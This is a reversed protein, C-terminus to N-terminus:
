SGDLAKRVADVLQETHAPGFESRVKRIAAVALDAPSKPAIEVPDPVYLEVNRRPGLTNRIGSAIMRQIDWLVDMDALADVRVKVTYEYRGTM